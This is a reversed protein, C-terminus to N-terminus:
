TSKWNTYAFTVQLQVIGDPDDSLPIISMSVPFAELLTCTYSVEDPTITYTQGTDSTLVSETYVPLINATRLQQIPIDRCYEKKYKVEYTNQDIALQQWAEIYRRIGYDGTVHFTMTVDDVIYEYAVKEHRMGIDRTRTSLQRGPLTVDKCLVDFDTTAIGGIAPLFVRFLNARSLGRRQDLVSKLQEVSYVM